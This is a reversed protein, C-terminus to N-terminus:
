HSQSLVLSLSKSCMSCSCSCSSSSCCQSVVKCPVLSEKLVSDNNSSPQHTCNHSQEKHPTSDVFGKNLCTMRKELLAKCLSQLSHHEVKVAVLSDVVMCEVQILSSVILGGSGDKMQGSRRWQKQLTSIIQHNHNRM